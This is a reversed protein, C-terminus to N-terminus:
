AVHHFSQRHSVSPRRGTSVPLWSLIQCSPPERRPGQVTSPYQPHGLSGVGPRTGEHRARTDTWRLSDNSVLSGFLLVCHSQLRQLVHKLLLNLVKMASLHLENSDKGGDGTRGAVISEFLCDTLM